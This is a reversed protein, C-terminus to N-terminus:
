VDEFEPFDELLLDCGGSIEVIHMGVEVEEPDYSSYRGEEENWAFLHETAGDKFSGDLPIETAEQMEQRM